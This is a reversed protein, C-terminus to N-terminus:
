RAMHGHKSGGLNSGDIFQVGEGLETRDVSRVRQANWRRFLDFRAAGEHRDADARMWLWLSVEADTTVELGDRTWRIVRARPGNRLACAIASERLRHRHGCDARIHQPMKGKRYPAVNEPETDDWWEVTAWCHRAPDSFRACYALLTGVAIADDQKIMTM